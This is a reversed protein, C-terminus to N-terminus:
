KEAPLIIVTQNLGPATHGLPVKAFPGRGMPRWCIDARGPAGKSLVLVRLALPEGPELSTRVATVVVRVPGDYGRPILVASLSFLALLAWGKSRVKM